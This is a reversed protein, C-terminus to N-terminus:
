PHFILSINHIINNTIRIFIILLFRLSLSINSSIFHLSSTYEYLQALPTLIHESTSRSVNKMALANEKIKNGVLGFSDGIAADITSFFLYSTPFESSL